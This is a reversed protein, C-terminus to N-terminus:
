TSRSNHSDAAAAFDVIRGDNVLALVAVHQVEFIATPGAALHLAVEGQVVRRSEREGRARRRAKGARKRRRLDELHVREKGAAARRPRPALLEDHAIELTVQAGIDIRDGSREDIARHEVVPREALRDRCDMIAGGITVDVPPKNEDVGFGGGNGACGAMIHGIEERGDLARERVQRGILRDGVLKGPDVAEVGLHAADLRDDFVRPRVDGLEDAVDDVLREVARERMVVDAVPAFRDVVADGAFGAESMFAIHPQLHRGHAAEDRAHRRGDAAHRQSRREGAGHLFDDIGPRNGAADDILPGAAVRELVLGGHMGSQREPDFKEESEVDIITPAPQMEQDFSLVPEIPQKIFPPKGPEIGGDHVPELASEIQPEVHQLLALLRREETGANMRQHLLQEAM